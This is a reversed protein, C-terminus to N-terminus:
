RQEAAPQQQDVGFERVCDTASLHNMRGVRRARIKGERVLRDITDAQVGAQVLQKKTYFLKDM